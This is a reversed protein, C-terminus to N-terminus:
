PKMLLKRPLELPQHAICCSCHLGPWKYIATPVELFFLCLRLFDGLYVSQEYLLSTYLCLSLPLQCSTERLCHTALKSVEKRGAPWAAYNELGSRWFIRLKDPFWLPFCLSDALPLLMLMRSNSVLTFHKEYTQM